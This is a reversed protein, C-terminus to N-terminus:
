APSLRCHDIWNDFFHPTMAHFVRPLEAAIQLSDALIQTTDLPFGSM